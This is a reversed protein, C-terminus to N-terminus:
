TYVTGKGIWGPAGALGSGAAAWQYFPYQGVSPSANFRWEGHAQDGSDSPVGNSCRLIVATQNDMGGGGEGLVMQSAWLANSVGNTRRFKRKSNQSTWGWVHKGRDTDPSLAMDVNKILNEQVTFTRSSLTLGGKSLAYKGTGGVFSINTLTTPDLQKAIQLLGTVGTGTITAGLQVADAPAATVTLVPLTFQGTMAESNIDGQTRNPDPTGGYTGGTYGGIVSGDGTTIQFSNPWFGTPGSIITGAPIGTGTLVQGPTVTGSTTSLVFMINAYANAHSADGAGIQGTFSSSSAATDAISGTITPPSTNLAGRMSAQVDGDNYGWIDTRRATEFAADVTQPGFSAAFTHNGDAMGANTNVVLANGFGNDFVLEGHTSTSHGIGGWVSAQVSLQSPNAGSEVYTGLWQNTSQICNSTWPGRPEYKATNNWIFIDQTPFAQGDGLWRVWAYHDTGPENHYNPFPDPDAGAAPVRALWIYGNHVVLGPYRSGAFARGDNASQVRVWSNGFFSADNVAWRLNSALDLDLALGANADANGVKVGDHGNWYCTVRQLEWGNVIGSGRVENDGDACVAVGFGAFSFFGCRLIQIRNRMVCGSPFSGKVTLDEYMSETRDNNGNWRSWFTIDSIVDGVNRPRLESWTLHRDFAFTATGVVIGIGTGTPAAGSTRGSVTCTYLRDTGGWYYQQGAVVDWSGSIAGADHSVTASSGYSHQVQIADETRSTRIMTNQQGSGIFNYTGGEMSHPLSLYYCGNPIKLDMGGMGAPDNDSRSIIWYKCDEFAQWNDFSFDNTAHSKAGFANPHVYPASAIMQYKVGDATTLTGVNYSAPILRASNLPTTFTDVKQYTAGGFDGPADWGSTRIQSPPAGTFTVAQWQARTLGPDGSGSFTGTSMSDVIDHTVTRLRAATIQGTANTPFQTDIETNLDAQSRVTM